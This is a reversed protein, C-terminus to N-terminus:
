RRREETRRGSTEPRSQEHPNAALVRLRSTYYAVVRQLPYPAAGGLWGAGRAGRTRSACGRESAFLRTTDETIRRLCRVGFVGALGALDANAASGEHITWALAVRRGVAPRLREGFRLPLADGPGQDQGSRSLRENM